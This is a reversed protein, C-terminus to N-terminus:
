NKKKNFILYVMDVIPFVIYMPQFMLRARIYVFFVFFM